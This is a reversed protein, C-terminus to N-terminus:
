LPEGTTDFTLFLRTYAPTLLDSPQVRPFTFIIVGGLSWTLDMVNPHHLIGRASFFAPLAHHSGSVPFRTNEAQSAMLTEM